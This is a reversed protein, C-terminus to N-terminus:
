FREPRVLAYFLYGILGLSLLAGLAYDLTMTLGEWLRAAVLAPRGSQRLVLHARLVGRDGRRLGSREHPSSVCSEHRCRVVPGGSRRASFTADRVSTACIAVAFRVAAPGSEPRTRM